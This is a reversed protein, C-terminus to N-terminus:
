KRVSRAKKLPADMGAIIQPGVELARDRVKDLLRLLQQRDERTLPSTTADLAAYHQPAFSALIALGAKTLSVNKSRRDKSSEKTEVLGADILSSVLWTVNGRTNYLADALEHAPMTHDKASYLAFLVNSRAASLGFPQAYRDMLEQLVLNTMRLTLVIDISSCDGDHFSDVNYKLQKRITALEPHHKIPRYETSSKM